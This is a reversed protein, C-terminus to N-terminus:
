LGIHRAYGAFHVLHVGTLDFTPIGYAMVEVADPAEHAIIQRVAQLRAQVEAPFAAIYADVQATAAPKPQPSAANPMQADTAVM